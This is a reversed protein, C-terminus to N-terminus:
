RNTSRGSEGGKRRYEEALEAMRTSAKCLPGTDGQCSRMIDSWVQEPGEVEQKKM